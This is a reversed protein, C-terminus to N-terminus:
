EKEGLAALIFEIRGHEICVLNPETSTSQQNMTVVHTRKVRREMEEYREIRKRAATLDAKLRQRTQSSEDFLANYERKLREGEARLATIEKDLAELEDTDTKHLNHLLEIEARLEDEIPRRNWAALAEEFTDYYDTELSCDECYVYYYKVGDINTTESFAHGGCQCPKLEQTDPKREGCKACVEEGMYPHYTHCCPEQTGDLDDMLAEVSEHTTLDEGRDTEDMTRKTLDNPVHVTHGTTTPEQTGNQNEDGEPYEKQESPIWKVSYKDGCYNCQYEATIYKPVTYLRSGDGWDKGCKECVWHGTIPEIPERRQIQEQGWKIDNENVPSTILTGIIHTTERLEDELAELRRTIKAWEQGYLVSDNHLGTLRSDIEELREVIGPPYFGKGQAKAEIAKVRETLKSMKNQNVWILEALKDRHKEANDPPFNKRTEELSKVRLHMDRIRENVEGTLKSLAETQRRIDEWVTDQAILATENANHGDILKDILGGKFYVIRDGEEPKEIM